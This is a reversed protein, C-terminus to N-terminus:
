GKIFRGTDAIADDVQQRILPVKEYVMRKNDETCELPKGNWNLDWSKTCAVRMDAAEAEIEAATLTAKGSRRAVRAMRRDLMKRRFTKAVESEVSYVEIKIGTDGGNQDFIDVVTTADEGVEFKSADM